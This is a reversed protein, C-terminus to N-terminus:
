GNPDWIGGVDADHRGGDPDWSSGVDTEEQPRPQGDPDWISGIEGTAVSLSRFLTLLLLAAWLAHPM